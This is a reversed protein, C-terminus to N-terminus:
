GVPIGIHIFLLMEFPNYFLAARKQQRIPMEFQVNGYSLVQEKQLGLETSPLEMSETPSALFRPMM